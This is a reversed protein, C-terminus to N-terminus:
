ADPSAARSDIPRSPNSRGVSRWIKLKLGAGYSLPLAGRKSRPVQAPEFEQRPTWDDSPPAHRCAVPRSFRASRRTSPEVGEGEAVVNATCRFSRDVRHSRVITKDNDERCGGQKRRGCVRLLKCRIQRDDRRRGVCRKLGVAIPVLGARGPRIAAAAARPRTRPSRSSCRCRRGVPCSVTCPACVSLKITASRVRWRGNMM